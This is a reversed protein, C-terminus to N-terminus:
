KTKQVDSDTNRLPLGGIASTASLQM